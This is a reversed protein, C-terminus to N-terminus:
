RANGMAHVHLTRRLEIAQQALEDLRELDRRANEKRRDPKEPVIARKNELSRRRHAPFATKPGAMTLCNERRAGSVPEDWGMHGKTPTVVSLPPAMGM